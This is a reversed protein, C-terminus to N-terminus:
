ITPEINQNVSFQNRPDWDNKVEVLREYNAGYAARVQEIDDDTQNNVYEGGTSYPAMAEHFERAWSIITEDDEPNDWQVAMEFLHNTERHPYATADVDVRNVAGGLSFFVVHTLPTPLPVAREVFTDIADDSLESLCLNTWYNRRDSAMETGLESYPKTEVVDLLPNGFERLPRIVKDGHEVDGVYRVMLLAVTEGHLRAPLESDDSIQLIGVGAIAEEPADAMFERYRRLVAGADELPYLFQGVLAESQVKHCDFEFSTVVGFNGSGGRLAWFLEANESESAHVLEGDATVVDVARLNDIALGYKRSLSGMGGGLTYGGVGVEDYPMGVIELDFAHLEHNVDGWTAGGQVRVTKADPDVRVGNMPALDIVLGNDCVAHGAIHHGGGNVALDLGHERAFDVGAIVDAAGTCQAIVAPENDIMANWVTRMEDYGDDGPQVVTGRVREDFSELTPDDLQTASAM